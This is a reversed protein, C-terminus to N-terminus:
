VVSVLRAPMKLIRDIPEQLAIRRVLDRACADLQGAGEGIQIANVVRCHFRTARDIHQGLQLRLDFDRARAAADARARLSLSRVVRSSSTSRSTAWPRVFWAM